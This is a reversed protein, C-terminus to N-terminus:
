KELREQYLQQSHLKIAVLMGRIMKRTKNELISGIIKEFSPIYWDVYLDLLLEIKKNISKIVWTGYYNGYDGKIMNFFIEYKKENFVDREEWEINADEIDIKWSSIFEEDSIKNVDINKVYKMFTPYNHMDKMVSFVLEKPASIFISTKINHM